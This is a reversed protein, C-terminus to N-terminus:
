QEVEDDFKLTGDMFMDIMEPVGRAASAIGVMAEVHPRCYELLRKALLERRELEALRATLAAFAGEDVAAYGPCDYGNTLEYAEDATECETVSYGDGTETLDLIAFYKM